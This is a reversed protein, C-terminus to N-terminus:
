DLSTGLGSQLQLWSSAKSLELVSVNSLDVDGELVSVYIPDVGGELVSVNSLDVGGEVDTDIL